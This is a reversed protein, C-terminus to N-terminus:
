SKSAEIWAQFAAIAAEANEATPAKGFVASQAEAKARLSSMRNNRRAAIVKPDDPRRLLVPPLWTGRERQSRQKNVRDGNSLTIDRKGVNTVTVRKIQGTGPTYDSPSFLVAEDGVQWNYPNTPDSMVEGHAADGLDIDVQQRPKSAFEGGSGAPSGSPKHPQNSM